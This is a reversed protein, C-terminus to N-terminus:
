THQRFNAIESIGYSKLDTEGGGWQDIFVVSMSLTTQQKLRTQGNNANQM